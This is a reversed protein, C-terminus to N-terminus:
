LRALWRSFSRFQNGYGHQVYSAVANMLEGAKLVDDVRFDECDLIKYSHRLRGLGRLIRRLTSRRKLANPKTANDTHPLHHKARIEKVAVEIKAFNWPPAECLAMDCVKAIDLDFRALSPVHAKATLFAEATIVEYSPCNVLASHFQLHNESEFLSAENSRIPGLHSAGNSRGSIGAICFPTYVYAYGSLKAANVIGSYADPTVSHFYVGQDRAAAVIDRSVFGVYLGPLETYAVKFQLVQELVRSPSRIEYGARTSFVLRNRAQEDLANPWYYMAQSSIVALQQTEEIIAAVREIAGPALGDDDGLFMLYDGTAHNLAFEFNGAMSLRKGTHVYKMRPDSFAAVVERTNDTSANDSVIIELEAFTQSVCSALTFHLTECRERTPIMVTFKTMEIPALLSQHNNRRM